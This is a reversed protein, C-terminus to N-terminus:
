HLIPFFWVRPLCLVVAVVIIEIFAQIALWNMMSTTFPAGEDEKLYPKDADPILPKKNSAVKKAKNPKAKLNGSGTIDIDIMPAEFEVEVEVDAELDVDIECGLNIEVEPVEVEIEVEVLVVTACELKAM